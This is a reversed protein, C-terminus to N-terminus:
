RLRPGAVQLLAQRLESPTLSRGGLEGHFFDFYRRCCDLLRERDGASQVYPTCGPLFSPSHLSFCFVSVGNALLHRTLRVLDDLEHGEPSLRIRELARIRALLAPMRLTGFPWRHALDHIWAAQKQLFGVLAGTVPVVLLQPVAPHWFPQATTESWDPGGEASYDFGPSPSVDNDIGLEGLALATQTSFGYRGAQYTKPRVGVNAELRDLLQAIKRRELDPALNCPFSHEPTLEEEFPPTVWPHLHAGLEASGSALISRLIEGARPDAAVPHTCAYLPRVGHERFIAHTGPLQECSRVSVCERSFGAGWDFEEETTVLVVLVPANRDGYRPGTALRPARADVHLAM